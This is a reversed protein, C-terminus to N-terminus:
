SIINFNGSQFMNLDLHPLTCPPSRGSPTSGTSKMEVFSNNDTIIDCKELTKRVDDYCQFLLKTWFSNCNPLVIILLQQPNTGYLLILAALSVEDDKVCQMSLQNCHVWMANRLVSIRDEEQQQFMQFVVAHSYSYTIMFVNFCLVKGVSKLCRLVCKYFETICSTIVQVFFQGFHGKADKCNLLLDIATM